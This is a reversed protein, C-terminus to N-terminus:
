SRGLVFVRTCYWVFSKEVLEPSIREGIRAHARPLESWHLEAFHHHATHYGVNFFLTNILGTFNRSHDFDTDARAEAHQLYNSALLFFLAAAQPVLICYIARPADLALAVGDVALLVFYEWAVGYFQPQDAHWMRRAHRVMMPVAVWAFEFPHRLLGVLDNGPRFRYTRTPDLANNRFRHHGAMHMPEFAFGPQGQFLTFWLDTLRNLAPRRWIPLHEHNHSMAAVAFAMVIGAALLLPNFAPQMWHAPVIATALAMYAITRRDAPHRLLKM